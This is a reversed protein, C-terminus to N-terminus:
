GFKFRDFAVFLDTGKEETGETIYLYCLLLLRIM